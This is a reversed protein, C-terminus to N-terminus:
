RASFGCGESFYMAMVTNKAITEADTKGRAMIKVLADINGSKTQASAGNAILGVAICIAYAPLSPM